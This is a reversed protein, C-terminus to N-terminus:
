DRMFISKISGWANGLVSESGSVSDPLDKERSEVIVIVGEGEKAFGFQNRIEEEVGRETELRAIEGRIDKERDKLKELRSEAEGRTVETEKYKVYAGWAANALFVLIIFLIGTIIRYYFVHQTRRRNGFEPMNNSFGM